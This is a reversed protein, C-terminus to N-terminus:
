LTTAIRWVPLVSKLVPVSGNPHWYSFRGSPRQLGSSIGERYTTRFWSGLSNQRCSIPVYRQCTHWFIWWSDSCQHPLQWLSPQLGEWVKSEVLQVWFLRLLNWTLNKMQCLCLATKAMTKWREWYNGQCFDKRQCTHRWGLIWDLQCPLQFNRLLMGSAVKMKEPSLLDKRLQKIRDQGWCGCQLIGDALWNCLFFHWCRSQFRWCCKCSLIWQSVTVFSFQNNGFWCVRTLKITHVPFSPSKCRYIPFPIVARFNLMQICLNLPTVKKFWRKKYRNM